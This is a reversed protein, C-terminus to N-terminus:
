GANTRSLGMGHLETHEMLGRRAPNVILAGSRHIRARRTVDARPARRRCSGSSQADGAARRHRSPGAVPTVPQHDDTAPLQPGGPRHRRLRHDLSRLPNYRRSRPMRPPHRAGDHRQGIVATHRTPDQLLEAAALRGGEFRYDSEIMRGPAEGLRREVSSVFACLRQQSSRMTHPGGVFAIRRHGLAALHAVAEDIGAQYDVVLHSIHPGPRGPDLLVVSVERRALEALLARDFESTMIAVGGGGREIFRRVYSTVRQPDYNTNALILDFDHEFAASEMEKVLDPFFPNSIDSVILGVLNTRGLALSRAQANPYYNHREIARRVIERTQSTVTGRNNIVRSVTATSVGAERAIDALVSRTGPPRRPRRAVTLASSLRPICPRSQLRKCATSWFVDRGARLDTWLLEVALAAQQSDPSFTTSGFM